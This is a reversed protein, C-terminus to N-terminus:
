ASDAGVRYYTVPPIFGFYSGQGSFDFKRKEELELGFLKEGIGFLADSTQLIDHGITSDRLDLYFFGLERSAEFFRKSEETDGTELKKLSLRLLPVTQVDQPFRPVGPFDSSNQTWDVSEQTSTM